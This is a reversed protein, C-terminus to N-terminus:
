ALKETIADAIGTKRTYDMHSYINATTQIDEHGLWEQIDKLTWGMSLLVSACSHRLDHFRIRPLNHIELLDRFRHSVYDPSYPRGDPWKFVYDSQFYEQGFLSRYQQEEEWLSKFIAVTEDSLPFTRHSSKNKTKYKAVVTKIKVVTHQITMTKGALDISSWQLGLLESRRLGYLTTIKLLPLLPDESLASFLQKLQKDSYFTGQYPVVSPMEVFQCPNSPILKNKVAMDLTQKIINKHQRLSKGSLGGKGDVRGCLYKTDMYTQLIKYDIKNLTVALKDFYPLIHTNATTTYGQFTVEDVKKVIHEMWVRIYDSFLVDTYIIGELLEYERIKERLFQEAKRKNGKEIFGTCIWKKKRKGNEYINLLAYYKGNKVTLSGTM